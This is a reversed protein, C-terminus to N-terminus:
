EIKNKICKMIRKQMPNCLYCTQLYMEYYNCIMEIKMQNCFDMDNAIDEQLDIDFVM